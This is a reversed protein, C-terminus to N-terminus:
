IIRDIHLSKMLPIDPAQDSLISFLRQDAYLVENESEIFLFQENFLVKYLPENPLSILKCSQMEALDAFIIARDM